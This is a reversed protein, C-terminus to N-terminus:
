SAIKGPLIHSCVMFPAPRNKLAIEELLRNEDLDYIWLHVRVNGEWAKGPEYGSVIVRCRDEFVPGWSWSVMGPVDPRPYWIRSDNLDFVGLRGRSNFLLRPRTDKM